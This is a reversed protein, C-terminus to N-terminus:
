MEQISGGWIYGDKPCGDTPDFLKVEYWRGHKEIIAITTDAPLRAIQTASGSPEDRVNAGSIVYAKPLEAFIETQLAVVCSQVLADLDSRLAAVEHANETTTETNSAVQESEAEDRKRDEPSYGYGLLLQAVELLMMAWGLYTFLQLVTLRPRQAVDEGAQSQENELPHEYFAELDWDVEALAAMEMFKASGFTESLRRASEFIGSDQLHRMASLTSAYNKTAFSRSLGDLSALYVSGKMPTLFDSLGELQSLIGSNTFTENWSTAFATLPSLSDGFGLFAKTASDGIVEDRIGDLAGSQSLGLFTKRMEEM